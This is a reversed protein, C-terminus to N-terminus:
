FIISHMLFLEVSLTKNIDPRKLTLIIAMLKKKVNLLEPKYCVYRQYIINYVYSLCVLRFSNDPLKTVKVFSVAQRQEPTVRTHAAVDKM